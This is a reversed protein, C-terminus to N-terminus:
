HASSSAAPPARLATWKKSAAHHAQKMASIDAAVNNATEAAELATRITNELSQADSM